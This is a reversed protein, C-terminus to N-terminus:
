PHTLNGNKLSSAQWNQLDGGSKEGKFHFPPNGVTHRGSKAFKGIM